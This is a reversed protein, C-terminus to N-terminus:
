ATRAVRYRPLWLRMCTGRGPGGSEAFVQGGHATILSKVLSLGLGLGGQPRDLPREGQQFLDFVHPLLDPQIGEGDDEVLVEVVEERLEARLRICGNPPTYKAANDILNILVQSIRVVDCWLWLPQSPLEVVFQHGKADVLPKAGEVVRQAIESFDIVEPKLTVTGRVIHSAELMDDVLRSLHTVQQEIIQQAWRVRPEGTDLLGLIHAANRIPALPNRLEHALTALFEEKRRNSDLLNSEACKRETIDQMFGHWLTGGDAERRPILHGEVWIEGKGPHQYRFWVHWPSLHRASADFKAKVWPADAPHIGVVIPAVSEVVAAAEIGYIDLIAPSAYPISVTGDPSQRLTGILGPVAAAVKALQEELRDIEQQLSSEGIVGSRTAAERGEHPATQTEADGVVRRSGIVRVLHAVSDFFGCGQEEIVRGQGWGIVPTLNVRYCPAGPTLNLRLDLLLDREAPPLETLIPDSFHDPILSPGPPRDPNSPSQVFRGMQPHWEFFHTVDLSPPCAVGRLHEGKLQPNM